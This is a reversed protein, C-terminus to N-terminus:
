AQSRIFAGMEEQLTHFIFRHLKGTTQEDPAEFMVLWRDM